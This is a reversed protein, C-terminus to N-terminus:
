RLNLAVRLDPTRMREVCVHGQAQECLDHVGAEEGCHTEHLGETKGRWGSM